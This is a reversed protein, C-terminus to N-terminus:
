SPVETSFTPGNTLTGNNGGSGQDTVTTGTGGDDDGMRWWGIPSYSTLDTPVGSNYISSIDSASLATNFLAVEDLLGKFPLFAGVPDSGILLNNTTAAISTASVSNTSPAVFSGNLYGKIKDNNTSQSGDFVFALHHWTDTATLGAVNLISYGGGTFFYPWRQYVAVAFGGGASNVGSNNGLVSALNASHTYWDTSLNIWVSATLTTLGDTLSSSAVDVYDNTGDFDVSYENFPAAAGGGPVASIASAGFSPLIFTM